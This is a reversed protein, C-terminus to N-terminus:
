ENWPNNSRRNKTLHFEGCFQCRYYNYCLDKAAQKVTKRSHFRAKDICGKHIHDFTMPKNSGKISYKNKKRQDKRSMHKGNRPRLKSM